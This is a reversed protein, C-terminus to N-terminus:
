KTCPALAAPGPLTRRTHELSSQAHAIPFNKKHATKGSHAWSAPALTLARAPHPVPRRGALRTAARRSGAGVKGRLTAPGRCNQAPASAPGTYWPGDPAGPRAPRLRGGEPRQPRSLWGRCSSDPAHPVRPAHSPHQCPV